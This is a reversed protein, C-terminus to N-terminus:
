RVDDIVDNISAGYASAYLSEAPCSPRFRKTELYKAYINCVCVAIVVINDLVSRSFEALEIKGDKSVDLATLVNQRVESLM